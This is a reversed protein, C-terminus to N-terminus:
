IVYRLLIFIFDKGLMYNQAATFLSRATSKFLSIPLLLNVHLLISKEGDMSLIVGFKHM